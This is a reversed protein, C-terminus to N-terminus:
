VITLCIELVKENQLISVRYGNFLLEGRKRDCGRAEKVETHAHSDAGQQSRVSLSVVGLIATYM